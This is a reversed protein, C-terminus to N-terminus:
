QVYEEIAKKLKVSFKEWSNEEMFKRRKEDREAEKKDTSIINNILPTLDDYNRFTYVIGEKSLDKFAGTDPGIIASPYKLSDMLAGSSLVSESHYSFLIIKSKKILQDLEDEEIFKNQLSINKYRSVKNKLSVLLDSDTVKGAIMIRYRNILDKEELHNLFADIGKYPAITGWIIIDYSKEPLSSSIDPKHRVPHPIYVSPTKQPIHKLGEESHTIILDSRNLLLKFLSTKIFKKKKSHSTKNHLTWIIKKGSSKLAAFLSFFILTQIKGMHKEPLDEIWNLYVIDTKRFFHFLDTIGRDSPKDRNIVKFSGSLSQALNSIYPNTIGTFNRSTIPYLYINKLSKNM